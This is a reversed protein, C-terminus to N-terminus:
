PLRWVGNDAKSTPSLKGMKRLKLAAWRMDYQWKYFLPGAAKLDSEHHEWIYQAVELITAAGGRSRIAQEVIPVLDDRDM